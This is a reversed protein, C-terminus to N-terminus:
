MRGHKVELTMYECWAIRTRLLKEVLGSAREAESRAARPFDCILEYEENTIHGRKRLWHMLYMHDGLVGKIARGRRQFSRGRQKIVGRMQHASIVEGYENEITCGPLELLDLWAELSTLGREPISHLGFAWGGSSKGIHLVEPNDTAQGCCECVEKRGTHAYYNTGM